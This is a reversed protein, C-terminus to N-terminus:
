ECRYSRSRSSNPLSGSGDPPPNPRTAWSGLKYIKGSYDSITSKGSPPSQNLGIESEDRRRMSARSFPVRFRTFRGQNPESMLHLVPSHRFLIRPIKPSSRNAPQVLRHTAMVRFTRRNLTLREPHPDRSLCEAFPGGTRLSRWAKVPHSRTQSHQSEGASSLLRRTAASISRGADLHDSVAIQITVSDPDLGYRKESPTLNRVVVPTWRRCFPSPERPQHPPPGTLRLARAM